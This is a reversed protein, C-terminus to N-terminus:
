INYNNLYLMRKKKKQKKKSTKYSIYGKNILIFPIYM